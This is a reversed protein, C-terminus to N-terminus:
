GETRISEEKEQWVAEEHSRKGDGNVEKSSRLKRTIRSSFEGTKTIGNKYYSERKM